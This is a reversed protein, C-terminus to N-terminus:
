YSTNLRAYTSLSLRHPHLPLLHRGSDTGDQKVMLAVLEEGWKQLRLMWVINLCIVKWLLQPAPYMDSVTCNFTVASSDDSTEHELTM